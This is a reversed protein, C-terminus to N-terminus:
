RALLSGLLALAELGVLNAVDVDILAIIEAEVGTEEFLERLAAARVTEGWEIRGGPM